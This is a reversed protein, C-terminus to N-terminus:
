HSPRMAFRGTQHDYVCVIESPAFHRWAACIRAEDAPDLDEMDVRGNVCALATNPIPQIHLNMGEHPLTYQLNVLEYDKLIGVDDADGFFSARHVAPLASQTVEQWDDGNHKGMWITCEHNESHADTETLAVTESGDANHYLRMVWEMTGKGFGPDTVVICDPSVQVRYPFEELYDALSSFQTPPIDGVFVWTSWTPIYTIAPVRDGLLAYLTTIARSEAPEPDGEASPPNETRTEM